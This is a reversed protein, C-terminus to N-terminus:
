ESFVLKHKPKKPSNESIQFSIVGFLFMNPLIGNKRNKLANTVPIIISFLKSNGGNKPNEINNGSM